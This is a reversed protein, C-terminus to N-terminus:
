RRAPPLVVRRLRGPFSRDCLQRMWRGTRRARSGALRARHRALLISIGTRPVEVGRAVCHEDLRVRDARLKRGVEPRCRGPCAARGHTRLSPLSVAWRAVGESRAHHLSIRNPASERLISERAIRVPIWHVSCTQVRQDCRFLVATAFPVDATVPLRAALSVTFCKSRQHKLSPHIQRCTSCRCARTTVSRIPCTRGTSFM